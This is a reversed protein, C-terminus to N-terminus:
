KVKKVSSESFEKVKKYYKWVQRDTMYNEEAVAEVAETTKLGDVAMKYYLQYEIGKLEKLTSHMKELQGLLYIKKDTLQDIEEKISLGNSQKEVEFKHLYAIVKSYNEKSGKFMEGSASHIGLYRSHLEEKKTELIELRKSIIKIDNQTDRITRISDM